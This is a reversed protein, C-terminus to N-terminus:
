SISDKDLVVLNRAQYISCRLHYIYVRDFNCSVIPTNAGFVTTASYKQKDVSKEDGDETMDAGLAGELKFIAAAGHTESPAMKRRWRRRRFTDSSRQKWHFKWGILSAYEWGERDELEEMAKRMWQM